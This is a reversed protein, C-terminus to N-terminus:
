GPSFLHVRRRGEATFDIDYTSYDMQAQVGPPTEFRVVPERGRAPRLELVRERVITIGGTFGQARLEEFVRVFTIDPYRDLLQRITDDFPDVRSPRRPRCPPEQGARDALWRRVVGQVTDRALGLDQAIRRMSVGSQHRRVIEHRREENM